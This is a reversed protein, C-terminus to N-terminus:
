NSGSSPNRSTHCTQHMDKGHRHPNWDPERAEELVDWFCALLRVPLSKVLTHILTHHHGATSQSGMWPTNRMGTTGPIPELNVKIRVLIFRSNFSLLICPSRSQCISSIYFTTQYGSNYVICGFTHTPRVLQTGLKPMQKLSVMQSGIHPNKGFWQCFFCSTNFDGKVPILPGIHRNSM